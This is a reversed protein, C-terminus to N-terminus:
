TILRDGRTEPTKLTRKPAVSRGLANVVASGDGDSSYGSAYDSTSKSLAVEKLAAEKLDDSKM